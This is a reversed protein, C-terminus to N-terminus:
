RNLAASNTVGLLRGHYMERSMEPPLLVCSCAGAAAAAAAAPAGDFLRVSM